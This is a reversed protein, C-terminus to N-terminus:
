GTCWCSIQTNVQTAKKSFYCVLGFGVVVAVNMTFNAWRGMGLVTNFTAILM